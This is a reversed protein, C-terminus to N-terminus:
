PKAATAPAAPLANLIAVVANTITAVQDPTSTTGLNNSQLFTNIAAAIGPAAVAAKQAGSGTQAGAAVAAAEAAAAAAVASNFLTSLGPFLLDVEPEVAQAVSVTGKFIKEFAHGINSLLSM